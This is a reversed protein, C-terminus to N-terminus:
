LEAEETWDTFTVYCNDIDSDYEIDSVAWDPNENDILLATDPIDKLKERLEKATLPM